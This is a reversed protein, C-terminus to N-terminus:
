FLNWIEEQNLYGGNTTNTLVIVVKRKTKSMWFYSRFGRWWGNHFVITDGEIPRLRWGLGYFNGSKTRSMPKFSEKLGSESVVTPSKLEMYFRHLDYVSSVLGKDGIVGDLYFALKEQGNPYHGIVDYQESNQILPNMYHTSMMGIPEFVKERAYDEFKKGSLEEVIVPILAYNTNCYDFTRDPSFYLPVEECRLFEYFDNNRMFSDPNNWLSDTVYMYNGLGSRHSLIQRFSIDPYPFDLLVSQVSTDISIENEALCTLLIVASIPKTLSALQFVDELQLSDDRLRLKKLGVASSHVSDNSSVLYVGNFRRREALSDFYHDVRDALSSKLDGTWVKPQQKPTKPVKREECSSVFFILLSLVLLSRSM